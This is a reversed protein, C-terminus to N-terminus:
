NGATNTLSLRGMLLQWKALLNDPVHQPIEHLHNGTQLVHRTIMLRLHLPATLGGGSQVQDVTKSSVTGTGVVSQALTVSQSVAIIEQYGREKM